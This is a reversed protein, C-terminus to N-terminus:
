HNALETLHSLERRKTSIKNEIRLKWPPINKKARKTPTTKLELGTLEAITKIAAKMLNMTESIDATPIYKIAKNVDNTIKRFQKRSTIQKMNPITINNREIFKLNEKVKTLVEM